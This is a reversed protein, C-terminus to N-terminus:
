DIGIMEEIYELDEDIYGRVTNIMEKMNRSSLDTGLTKESEDLIDYADLYLAEAEEFDAFDGEDLELGAEAFRQFAIVVKYYTDIKQDGPHANKERGFYDKAEGMNYKVENWADEELSKLSKRMVLQYEAERDAATGSSSTPTISRTSDLVSAEHEEAQINSNSSSGTKVSPSSVKTVPAQKVENKAEIKIPESPKIVKIPAAVPEPQVIPTARPTVTEKVPKSVPTVVKKPQTIKPQVVQPEIITPQVIEPEQIVAEQKKAERRQRYEELIEEYSRKKAQYYGSGGVETNQNINIIPQSSSPTTKLAETKEGVKDKGSYRTTLKKGSKRAKARQLLEQLKTRTAADIAFAPLAM